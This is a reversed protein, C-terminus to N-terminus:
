VSLSFSLVVIKKATDANGQSYMLLFSHHTYNCCLYWFNRYYEILYSFKMTVSCEANKYFGSRASSYMNKMTRFIHVEGSNLSYKYGFM